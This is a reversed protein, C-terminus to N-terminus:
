YLYVSNNPKSCYSARIDSSVNRWSKELFESAPHFFRCTQLKYTFIIGHYFFLLDRSGFIPPINKHHGERGKVFFLWNQILLTWKHCLNLLSLYHPRVYNHEIITNVNCAAGDICSMTASNITISLICPFYLDMILGITSFM